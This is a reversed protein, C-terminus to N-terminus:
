GRHRQEADALIRLADRPRRPDLNREAMGRRLRYLVTNRHVGLARAATAVRGNARAVALLTADLPDAAERNPAVPSALPRSNTGARPVAAAPAPRRLLARVTLALADIAVQDVAALPRDDFLWASAGPRIRGDLLWLGERSRRASDRASTGAGSLLRAHLAVFRAALARGAARPHLAVLQGDVSVAVGREIRAAVLGAPTAPLPDALSAEACALRLESSLRALFAPEDALYSTADAVLRAVPRDSALVPLRDDGPEMGTAAGTLIVAVPDLRADRLAEDLEAIGRLRLAIADLVLLAGDAPEPLHPAVARSRLVTRVPQALRAAAGSVLRAEPDVARWVDVANTM